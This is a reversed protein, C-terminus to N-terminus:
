RDTSRLERPVVFIVVKGAIEILASTSFSFAGSCIPLVLRAPAAFLEFRPLLGGVVGRPRDRLASALRARKM